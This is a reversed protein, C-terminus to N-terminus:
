SSRNSWLLLPALLLDEEPPWCAGEWWNEGEGLYVITINSRESMAFTSPWHPVRVQKWCGHSLAMVGLVLKFLWLCRGVHKQQALSQQKRSMGGPFGRSCGDAICSRADRTWHCLKGTGWTCMETDCWIYLLSASHKVPSHMRQLVSHSLCWM